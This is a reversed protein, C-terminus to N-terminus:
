SLALPDESERAATLARDAVRWLLDPAPQYAVFTQTLGYTEALLAQATRRHKGRYMWAALQADRIM